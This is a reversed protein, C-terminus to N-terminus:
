DQLTWECADGGLAMCRTHSLRAAKGTYLLIQEEILGTFLSCAPRSEELRAMVCDNVTVTFPKAVTIASGANLSRLVRVTARRASRLALTAPGRHLIVRLLQPTRRFHWRAVRQGTERLVPEADPRRMVLRFLGMAESLPVPHGGRQASEYRQIQTEVVGTLGLRRPMSVSLDEDELIEGPRDHARLAQLLALPFSAGVTGEFHPTGPTGSAGPTGPTGPTGPNRGPRLSDPGTKNEPRGAGSERDQQQSM